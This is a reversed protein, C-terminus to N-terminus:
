LEEQWNERSHRIRLIEVINKRERYLLIVPFRQVRWKRVPADTVFPGVRPSEALFRAAAFMAQAIKHALDGDIQRYHDDLRGLDDLAEPTWYPKSM